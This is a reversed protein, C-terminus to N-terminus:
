CVNGTDAQFGGGWLPIQVNETNRMPTGLVLSKAEPLDSNLAPVKGILSSRSEFEHEPYQLDCQGLRNASQEVHSPM